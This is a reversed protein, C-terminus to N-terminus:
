RGYTILLVCLSIQFLINKEKKTVKKREKQEKKRTLPNLMNASAHLAYKVSTKQDISSHALLSSHIASYNAFKVMFNGFNTPM